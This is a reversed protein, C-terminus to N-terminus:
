KLSPFFAVLLNSPGSGSAWGPSPSHRDGGVLSFVECNVSCQSAHVYTEQRVLPFFVLRLNFM